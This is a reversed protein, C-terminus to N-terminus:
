AATDLSATAWAQQVARIEQDTPRGPSRPLFRAAIIVRRLKALMDAVSPDTKTTYWPAHERRDAADSPHHGHLAYWAVTITYCYLGFPVTREVAARTRNQAQGTGLLDRAEAFTVEIAWRWAYRTILAPAPTTLDTTVLALDYGTATDDDRLLIVRVTQTHFSGYWLCTQEALHVTETRQYRTVHVSAFVLTAALDKATGLRAGKLAPRGRRGTRPPALDYLVGSAPLRTTFTCTAPLDRLARGHYAADAVVHIRRTHHCAALLRLMSAALDVKSQEQKPRWLRAMVPLCVPRALFPLQVIIGVVVFCTGRGVPKPGKAAGDHQWAAGFVKKGRRKFLTDDVAVTLVSGEPLLRRVVLHSLAIGLLDPSWRARSFFAHARDHSWSRTLGAGALMGTVTGRGTQAVLGTVLAAFTTFTPATFCGRLLGLVALLSAPVTPDPLM